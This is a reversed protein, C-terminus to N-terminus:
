SKKRIQRIIKLLSGETNADRDGFEQMTGIINEILQMEEENPEDSILHHPNYISNNGIGGYHGAENYQRLQKMGNSVTAIGVINLSGIEADVCIIRVSVGSADLYTEGLKFM